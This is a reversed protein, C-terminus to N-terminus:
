QSQATKRREKRKRRKREGLEGLNNCTKPYNGSNQFIQNQGNALKNCSRHFLIESIRVGSIKSMDSIKSMPLKTAYKTHRSVM